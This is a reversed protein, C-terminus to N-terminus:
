LLWSAAPPGMGRTVSTAFDIIGRASSEARDHGRSGDTRHSAAADCATEELIEPLERGEAFLADIKAHIRDTPSVRVSVPM